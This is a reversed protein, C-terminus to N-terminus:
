QTIVKLVRQWAFYFKGQVPTPFHGGYKKVSQQHRQQGSYLDSPIKTIRQTNRFIRDCVHEQPFVCSVYSFHVFDPKEQSGQSPM